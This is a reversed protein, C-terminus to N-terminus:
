SPGAARVVETCWRGARDALDPQAAGTATAATAPVVTSGHIPATSRAAWGSARLVARIANTSPKLGQETHTKVINSASVKCVPDRLFTSITPRTKRVTVAAM